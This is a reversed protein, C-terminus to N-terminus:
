TMDLVEALTPRRLDAEVLGVRLGSAALAAAMNVTTTIKGEGPVSSTVVFVKHETDPQLYRLNTRLQRYEEARRSWGREAVPVPEVRAAKDFAITGIIAAGSIAAAQEASHVRTGVAASIAVVVAALVLGGLLGLVLLLPVNPSSPKTP